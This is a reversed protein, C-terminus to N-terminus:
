TCIDRISFRETTMGESGEMRTTEYGRQPSHAPLEINLYNDSPSILHTYSLIDNAFIAFNDEVLPWQVRVFLNHRLEVRLEDVV